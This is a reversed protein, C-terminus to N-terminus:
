GSIVNLHWKMVGYATVFPLLQHNIASPCDNFNGCYAHCECVLHFIIQSIMPFVTQRFVLNDPGPVLGIIYANNLTCTYYRQAQTVLQVHVAISACTLSKGEYWCSQLCWDSWTVPMCMNVQKHIVYHKKAVWTHIYIYFITSLV